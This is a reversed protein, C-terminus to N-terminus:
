IDGVSIDLITVPTGNVMVEEGNKKGIIALGLPSEVSIWGPKLRADNKGVLTITM